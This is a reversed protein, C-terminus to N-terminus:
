FNWFQRLYDMQEKTLERIGLKENLPQNKFMCVYMPAIEKHRDGSVQFGGDETLPFGGIDMLKEMCEKSNTLVVMDKEEVNPTVIVVEENHTYNNKTEDLKLNDKSVSTAEEFYDINVNIAETDYQILINFSDKKKMTDVILGFLEMMFVANKEFGDRKIFQHALLSGEKIREM